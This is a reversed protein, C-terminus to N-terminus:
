EKKGKGYTIDAGGMINLLSGDTETSIFFLYLVFLEV